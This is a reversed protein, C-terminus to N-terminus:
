ADCINSYNRIESNVKKSTKGLTKRERRDPLGEPYDLEGQSRTSKEHVHGLLTSAPPPTIDTKAKKGRSYQSGQSIFRM